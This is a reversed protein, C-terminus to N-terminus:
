ETLQCYVGGQSYILQSRVSIPKTITIPLRFLPGRWPANCDVGYVEYYHLGDSLNTPDVIIRLVFTGPDQLGKASIRPMWCNEAFAGLGYDLLIIYHGKRAEKAFPNNPALYRNGQSNITPNASGGTAYCKRTLITM